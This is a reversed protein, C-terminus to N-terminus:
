PIRLPKPSHFSPSVKRVEAVVEKSVLGKAVSAEFADKDLDYETTQKTTGGLELFKNRGVANFLADPDYKTTFQYLDFPGCRVQQGRCAKDAAELSTNYKEVLEQFQAFVAKNDDMFEEISKQADLFEIVEPVEEPDVTKIQPKSM